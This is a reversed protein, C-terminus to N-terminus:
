YLRRIGLISDKPFRSVNVSNSQNGALILVKDEEFGGFFGVHGQADIVNPGPQPGNGRKLIVVDSGIEANEIEVQEGILLWSRARLDKSRPLKLQKAIFNVFASCWSVEDHTPWSQDMKLMALIMPNDFNGVVEALGIWVSAVEYASIELRRM